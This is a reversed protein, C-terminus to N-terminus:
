RGDTILTNYMVIQFSGVHFSNQNQEQRQDHAQAAEGSTVGLAAALIGGDLVGGGSGLAVLGGSQGLSQLVEATDVLVGGLLGGGVVVHDTLDDNAVGLELDGPGGVVGVDHHLDALLVGGEVGDVDGDLVLLQLVVGEGGGDGVGRALALGDGKLAGQGDVVGGGDHILGLLLLGVLEVEDVRTQTLGEEGGALGVVGLEELGGGIGLGGHVEVGLGVALAELEVVQLVVAGLHVQQGGGGGGLVTLDGLVEVVDRVLAGGPDVLGLGVAPVGGDVADLVDHTGVAGVVGHGQGLSGVQRHLVATLGLEGCTDHLLVHGLGHGGGLTGGDVVGGLLDDVGDVGQVDAADEGATMLIGQGTDDGGDGGCPGVIVTVDRNDDHDIAHLVLGDLAEAQLTVAGVLQGHAIGDGNGTLKQLVVVLALGTLHLEVRATSQHAARGSGLGGDGVGGSVAHVLEVQDLDVGALGEEGVTLGVVVLEQLGGGVGLGSQVEACLDHLAAELEVGLDAADLLVQVGVGLVHVALDGLEEVVGLGGLGDPVVLGLGVGPVGGNVTGLVHCTGVVGEIGEGDGVGLEHGGLDAALGLEGQAQNLLGHGLAAVHAAIVLGFGGVSGISRHVTQVCLSGHGAGSVLEAEELAILVLDVVQGTNQGAEVHSGGLGEGVACVEVHLLGVAAEVEVAHHVAGLLVDVGLGHHAGVALVM